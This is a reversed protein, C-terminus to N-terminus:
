RAGKEFLYLPTGDAATLTASPQARDALPTSPRTVIGKARLYDLRAQLGECRFSVGPSCHTEHLGLTLGHGVLRRWRHPADGSAGFSFGLAEWFRSSEDLNLAPLAVELFSGCIAIKSADWEAPPFTRAELLVIEQGAPDCFALSNFENDLLHQQTTEVGLRRLPRVYDRLGPRVFTLQPGSQTRDHLGVAISGDFCVLYPNPLNDSVPLSQFGLSEFFEFSAALPQAAVSFELFRGLM